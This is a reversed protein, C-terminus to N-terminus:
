GNSSILMSYINESYDIAKHELHHTTGSEVKPQDLGEHEKYKGM